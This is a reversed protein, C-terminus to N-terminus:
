SPSDIVTFCIPRSVQHVGASDTVEWARLWTGVPDAVTWAARPQGSVITAAVTSPSGDPDTLLLTASGGTLDWPLGDLRPRLVFLEASDVCLPVLGTTVLRNDVPPVGRQLPFDVTDVHVV